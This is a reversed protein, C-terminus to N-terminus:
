SEAAYGAVLKEIAPIPHKVLDKAIEATVRESIERRLHKRLEGLTRAPAVIILEEISHRQAQENLFGAVRSTFEIEAQEHFDTEDYASRRAGADHSSFARGPAGSRLERDSPIEQEWKLALRFDPFESDGENKLFLAKSGDTVLVSAGHPVNM